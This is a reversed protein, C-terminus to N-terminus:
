SSGTSRDSPLFDEGEDGEDEDDDEEEGEDRAVGGDGYLQLGTVLGGELEMDPDVDPEGCCRSSVGGM